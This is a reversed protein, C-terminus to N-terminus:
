RVAFSEVVVSLDMCGGIPIGRERVREAVETESNVSLIWLITRIGFHTYM